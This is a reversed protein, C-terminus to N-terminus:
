LSKHKRGLKADVEENLAQIGAELLPKDVRLTGNKLVAEGKCNGVLKMGCGLVVANIAELLSM